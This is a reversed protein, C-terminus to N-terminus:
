SATERMQLLTLDTLLNILEDQHEVVETSDPVRLPVSKSDSIPAQLASWQEVWVAMGKHLLVALGLRVGSFHGGIAQERIYEYDGVM